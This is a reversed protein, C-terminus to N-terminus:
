NTPLRHHKYSVAGDEDLNTDVDNTNTDAGLGAGVNGGAGGDTNTATRISNFNNAYYSNYGTFSTEYDANNVDYYFCPNCANNGYNDYPVWVYDNCNFSNQGYLNYMYGYFDHVLCITEKKKLLIRRYGPHWNQNMLLDLSEPLDNSCIFNNLLVMLNRVTIDSQNIGYCLNQFEPLYFMPEKYHYWHYLMSNKFTTLNYFLFSHDNNLNYM